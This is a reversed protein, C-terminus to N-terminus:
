VVPVPGQRLHEEFHPEDIEGIMITPTGNLWIAENWEGRRVM